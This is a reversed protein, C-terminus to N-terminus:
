KINMNIFDDYKIGSNYKGKARTWSNSKYSSLFCNWGNDNKKKLIDGEGLIRFGLSKLKNVIDIAEEDTNFCINKNLLENKTITENEEFDFDDDNFDFNENVDVYFFTDLDKSDFYHDPGLDSTIVIDQEHSKFNSTYDVRYLGDKTLFKDGDDMYFDNKARLMTGKNIDSLNVDPKTPADEEEDFDDETWDFNEKINYIKRWKNHLFPWLDGHTEIKGWDFAFRVFEDKPTKRLYNKLTSKKYQNERKDYFNWYIDDNYYNDVFETLADNEVLFHYFRENGVFDTPVEESEEFDFDEENFDFNEWIPTGDERYSPIPMLNDWWPKKKYKRKPKSESYVSQEVEDWDEEDFPDIDNEYLKLYKM